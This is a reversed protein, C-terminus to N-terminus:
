RFFVISSRQAATRLGARNQSGGSFRAAAGKEKNPPEKVKNALKASPLPFQLRETINLQIKGLSSRRRFGPLREPKDQNWTLFGLQRPM